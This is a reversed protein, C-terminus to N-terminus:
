QNRWQNRGGNMSQNRWEDAGGDDTRENMPENM